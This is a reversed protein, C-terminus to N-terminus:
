HTFSNTIKGHKSCCTSIKSIIGDQLKGLGDKLAKAIGGFRDESIEIIGPILTDDNIIPVENEIGIQVNCGQEQISGQVKEWCTRFEGWVAAVKGEKDYKSIVDKVKLGFVDEEAVRFNCAESLAWYFHVILPVYELVKLEEEKSGILSLLDNADKAEAVKTLQDNVFSWSVIPSDLVQSREQRM